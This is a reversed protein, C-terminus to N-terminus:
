DKEFEVVGNEQKERIKPAAPAEPTSAKGGTEEQKTNWLDFSTSVSLSFQGFSKFSPADSLALVRGRTTFEVAWADVFRWEFGGGLYLETRINSGEPGAAGHWYEEGEHALTVDLSPTFTQDMFSVAIRQSSYLRVPAQFGNENECASFFGIGSLGITVPVSTTPGFTYAMGFGAIPVLTGSGAQLHQHSEGRRGLAYPDPETRGLPFSAGLRLAGIFNGQIAAFRGLLWPDTVDVLTEDHHHIDNPVSKPTGDLESYSPNVDAIRLSWRTDLAFWRAIGLSAELATEALVQDIHHYYPTPIQGGGFCEPGLDPCEALHSATM